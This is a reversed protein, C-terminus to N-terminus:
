FQSDTTTMMDVNVHSAPNTRVTYDIIGDNNYDYLVQGDSHLEVMGQGSNIRIGNSPRRGPVPQQVQPDYYGAVGVPAYVLGPVAYQVGAPAPAPNGTLVPVVTAPPPPPANDTTPVAAVAAAALPIAPPPPNAVRARDLIRLLLKRYQGSTDGRITTELTKKYVKFFADNISRLDVESREVQHRPSFCILVASRRTTALSIAEYLSICYLICVVIVFFCSCFFTPSFSYKCFANEFIFLM